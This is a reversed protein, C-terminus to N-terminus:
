SYIVSSNSRVIYQKSGIKFRAMAGPLKIPAKIATEASIKYSLIREEKGLLNTINWVLVVDNGRRKIKNPRVMGYEDPLKKVDHLIDVVRIEKIRRKGKNRVYLLVKMQGIGKASKVTLVKKNLIIGTESLYYIIYIIIILGILLFLPDRYNVVLNVRFDEGPQLEFNWTYFYQGNEKEINNPTPSVSSFIKDFFSLTMVYDDVVITNGENSKTIVINKTLFGYKESIDDRLNSYKGIRIKRIEDIYVNSGKKALIHLDHDGELANPNVNVDFEITKLEADTFSVVDSAKFADSDLSITIDDLEFDYVNKISLKLLNKDKKPDLGSGIDVKKIQLLDLDSVLNVIINNYIYNRPDNSSYVKFGLSYVSTPSNTPASLRLDFTTSDKPVITFFKKDWNWDLDSISYTIKDVVDQNNKITVKYVADEGHFIVDNVPVISVDYVAANVSVAFM